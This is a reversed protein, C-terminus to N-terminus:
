IFFQYKYAVLRSSISTDIRFDMNSSPLFDKLCFDHSVPIVIGVTFALYLLSTFTPNILPTRGAKSKSFTYDFPSVFKM